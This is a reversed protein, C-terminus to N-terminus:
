SAALSQSLSIHSSPRSIHRHSQVSYRSRAFGAPASQRNRRHTQHSKQIHELRSGALALCARLLSAYSLLCLVSSLTSYSSSRPMSRPGLCCWCSLQDELVNIPWWFTWALHRWTQSFPSICFKHTQSVLEILANGLTCTSRVSTRDGSRTSLSIRRDIWNCIRGRTGRNEHLVRYM